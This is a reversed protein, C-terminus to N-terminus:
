PMWGADDEGRAVDWVADVFNGFGWAVIGGLGFALLALGMIQDPTM